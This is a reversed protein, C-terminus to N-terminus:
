LAQGSSMAAEMLNDNFSTLFLYCGAPWIISGSFIATLIKTVIYQELYKFKLFCCVIRRVKILNESMTRCDRMGEWWGWVEKRKSKIYRSSCLKSKLCQKSSGSVQQQTEWITQLGQCLNFARTKATEPPLPTCRFLSPKIM